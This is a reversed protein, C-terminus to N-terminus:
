ALFPTRCFVCCLCRCFLWVFWVCLLCLMNNAYDEPLGALVIRILSYNTKQKNTKEMSQQPQEVPFWQTNLNEKTNSCFVSKQGTQKLRYAPQSPPQCTLLCVALCRLLFQNELSLVFSVKICCPKRYFVCSLRFWLYNEQTLDLFVM